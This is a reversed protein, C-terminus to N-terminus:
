PDNFLTSHNAPSDIVFPSHTRRAPSMNILEATDVSHISGFPSKTGHMSTNGEEASDQCLKVIEEKTLKLFYSSRTILSWKKKVMTIVSTIFNSEDSFALDKWIKLLLAIHEDNGDQFEFQFGYFLGILKKVVLSALDQLEYMNALVLLGTYDLITMSEIFRADFEISGVYLFYVLAKIRIYPEPLFLLNEVAENMGAALMRRFHPWRAVLLAKHVPIARTPYSEVQNDFGEKAEENELCVIEFDTFEQSMLLSLLDESLANELDHPIGYRNMSIELMFNLKYSQQEENPTDDEDGDDVTEDTAIYSGFQAVKSRKKGLLFLKGEHNVFASKWNSQTETAGGCTYDVTHQTVLDITEFSTLDFSSVKLKNNPYDWSPLVVKLCLRPNIKSPLVSVETFGASTHGPTSLYMEAVNNTKLSYFVISRVHNMDKELGGFSFIRDNYVVITHDFPTSKVLGGSIYMKTGDESLCCAHRSRPSPCHDLAFLPPGIWKKKYVNYIMMLSDNKVEGTTSASSPVEDEYPLGGFVLVNGNGIYVALHGERYLGEVKDDIEWTMTTTDLLYVNSDLEDYQDFGGYLFVYPTGTCAVITSKVNFSPISGKLDYINISPQKDEAM